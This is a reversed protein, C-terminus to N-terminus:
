SPMPTRRCCGVAKWLSPTSWRRTPPTPAYVIINDSETGDPRIRRVSGFGWTEVEDVGPLNAVEAQIRDVRYTQDFIVQVDYDFYALAEDLTQQLSARISFIAIFITSALSLTILTLTLRTKRRFTNRLSIQVPRGMPLVRRLAVIIRDLLSMGFHGKGLGYESIAERVTVRVGRYIPLAAALVPAALGIAVQVALVQPDIHAPGVDFNLLGAFISALGVAGLAGLPIAVILALVGFLLVMVFYM